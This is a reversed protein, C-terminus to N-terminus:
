RLPQEPLLNFGQLLQPRSFHLRKLLEVGEALNSSDGTMLEALLDFAAQALPVMYSVTRFM